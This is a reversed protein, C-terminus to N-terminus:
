RLQKAILQVLRRARQLDPQVMELNGCAKVSKPKSTM